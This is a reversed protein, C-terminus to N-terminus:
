LVFLQESSPHYLLGDVLYVVRRSEAVPIDLEYFRCEEASVFVRFGDAFLDKEFDKVCAEFQKVGEHRM